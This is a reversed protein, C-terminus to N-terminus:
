ELFSRIEQDFLRTQEHELYVHTGDDFLDFAHGIPGDTYFVMKYTVPYGEKLQPTFRAQDTGSGLLQMFRDMESGTLTNDPKLSNQRYLRVEVVKKKDVEGYQLGRAFKYNEGAYLRYGGISKVDKAAILDKEKVGKVRYLKAGKELYSADGNKTRYKPNSVNEVNFKVERVVEDIVDAPNKLVNERFGTYTKGNIKVFDIWDITAQGTFPNHACGSLMAIALMLMVLLLRKIRM